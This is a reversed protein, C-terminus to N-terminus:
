GSLCVSLCVRTQPIKSCIVGSDETHDCDNIKWESFICDELRPEVGSCEVNDMWISGNGEGFSSKALSLVADPFGLQRCVVRADVLDWDDDCVTGWMGGVSVCLILMFLKHIAVHFCLLAHSM